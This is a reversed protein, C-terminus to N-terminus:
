DNSIVGFAKTIKLYLENSVIIAFFAWSFMTMSIMMMSPVDLFKPIYHVLFFPVLPFGFTVMFLVNHKLKNWFGYRGMRLFVNRLLDHLLFLWGTVAPIIAFFIM